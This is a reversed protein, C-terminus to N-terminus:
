EKKEGIGLRRGNCFCLEETTREAAAARRWAGLEREGLCLRLPLQWAEVVGSSEEGRRDATIGAGAIAWQVWLKKSPLGCLVAPRAGAATTVAVWLAEPCTACILAILRALRNASWGLALRGARRDVQRRARLLAIRRLAGHHARRRVTLVPVARAALRDTCRRDAARLAGLGALRLTCVRLAGPGARWSIARLGCASHLTVPWFEAAEVCLHVSPRGGKSTAHRDQRSTKRAQVRRRNGCWSHSFCALWGVSV